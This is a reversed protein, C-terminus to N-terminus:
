QVLLAGKFMGMGCAFRLEGPNSPPLDVLVTQGPPLPKRIGVQPFVIENACNQADTRTFAVQMKRNAPIILRVPEFGKSSVEVSATAAPTKSSAIPRGSPQVQMTWPVTIVTGHRQFQLWLKYLGPERFGTVTRIV